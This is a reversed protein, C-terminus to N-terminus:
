FFYYFLYIKTLNSRFAHAYRQFINYHKIIKCYVYKKGYSKIKNPNEFERGFMYVIAKPIINM